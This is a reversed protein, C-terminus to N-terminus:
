RACLWRSRHLNEANDVWGSIRPNVLARNVSFDIPATGEDDLLVQEARVLIQGRRAADAERDAQDLLADYAPNRYDGYNQAGTDSKMLGLFTMPDNFDAYWVMAGVQFDRNAYAAFAVPGDNQVLGAEVGVARWDAQIAQV